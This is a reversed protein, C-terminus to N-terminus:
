PHLFHDYGYDKLKITKNKHKVILEDQNNNVEGIIYYQTNEKKLNLENKPSITFLLVYDEGGSLVLEYENFNYKLCFSSLKKSVPIKEYFIKAGKKSSNLIRKLDLLLGDSVDIMSNVYKSLIRGRKIEPIVKKHKNIFYKSDIKNKLCKLGLASEGTGRTIGILDGNKANERYIPHEARGVMTISIFMKDSGSFDGGALEIGWKNCGQKLGNYFDKLYKEKFKKPFGLGLYFYEPEGGMAIIDSINVALSKIALENMSFHNKNFHINEILIDNTILQYYDNLKYVSCDDGIGKGKSFKFNEKLFQVFRQENM